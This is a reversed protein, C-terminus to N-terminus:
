RMSGKPTSQKWEPTSIFHLWMLDCSFGSHFYTFQSFEIICFLSLSLCLSFSFSFLVRFTIVFYFHTFIHINSTEELFHISKALQFAWYPFPSICIAQVAEFLTFKSYRQSLIKRSCFVVTRFWDFMRRSPRALTGNINELLRLHNCKSILDESRTTANEILQMCIVKLPNCHTYHFM